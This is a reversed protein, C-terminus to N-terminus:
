KKKRKTPTNSAAAFMMAIMKQEQWSQRPAAPVEVTPQEERWELLLDKPKFRTKSGARACAINMLTACISAAHWDGRLGGIPEIKDYAQWEMFEGSPLERLM